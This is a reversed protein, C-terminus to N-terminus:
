LIQGVMSCIVAPLVGNNQGIKLGLGSGHVLITKSLGDTIKNLRALSPRYKDQGRQDLYRHYYM